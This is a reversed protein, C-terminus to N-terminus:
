IQNETLEKADILDGIERLNETNWLLTSIM